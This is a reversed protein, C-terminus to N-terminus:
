PLAQTDNYFQDDDQRQRQEVQQQEAQAQTMALTQLLSAETQQTTVFNQETQLRAGIADVETVDQANGLQSELDNLGSIRQQLSQLMTEALAQVGANSTASRNIWQATWDDGDPRYAQNQQEIQNILGNLPGGGTGSIIGTISGLSPLPNKQGFLEPAMGLVGTPHALTNYVSMLETYQQKLWNIETILNQIATMDIVPLAAHASGMGIVAAAATALLTRKM